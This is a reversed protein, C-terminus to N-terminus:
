YLKPHEKIHFMLVSQEEPTTKYPIASLNTNYNLFLGRRMSNLGEEGRAIKKM